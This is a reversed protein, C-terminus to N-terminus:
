ISRLDLSRLSSLVDIKLPAASGPRRLALPAFYSLWPLRSARRGQNEPILQFSCQFHSIDDRNNREKLAERYTVRPGLPSADREPRRKGRTIM